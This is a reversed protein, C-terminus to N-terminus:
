GVPTRGGTVRQDPYAITCDLPVSALFAIGSGPDPAPIQKPVPDVGFQM